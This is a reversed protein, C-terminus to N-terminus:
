IDGATITESRNIGRLRCRAGNGVRTVRGGGSSAAAVLVSIADDRQNVHRIVGLECLKGVDHAPIIFNQRRRRRCPRFTLTSSWLWDGYVRPLYRGNLVYKQDNFLVPSVVLYEAVERLSVAVAGQNLETAVDRGVM